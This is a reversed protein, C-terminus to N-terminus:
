NIEQALKDLEAASPGTLEIVDALSHGRRLMKRAVKRQV